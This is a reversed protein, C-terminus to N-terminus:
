VSALRNIKDKLSKLVDEFNKLDYPIFNVERIHEPLKSKDQSVPIILKKRCHAYDIEENVYKSDLGESTLLAVVCDADNIMSEIASPVKDGPGIEENDVLVTVNRLREIEKKLATKEASNSRSYSVFVKYTM